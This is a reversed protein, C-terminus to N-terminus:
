RGAVCLRCRRRHGESARRRPDHEDVDSAHKRARPAACYGVTSVKEPSPAFIRAYVMILARLRDSPLPPVDISVLLVTCGSATRAGRSGCCGGGICGSSRMRRRKRIAVGHTSSAASASIRNSRARTRKASNFSLRSCEEKRACPAAADEASAAAALGAEVSVRVRVSLRRRRGAVCVAARSRGSSIWSRSSAPHSGTRAGAIQDSRGARVRPAPHRRATNGAHVAISQDGSPASVRVDIRSRGCINLTSTRAAITNRAIRRISSACSAISRTNRRGTSSASIVTLDRFPKPVRARGVVGGPHIAHPRARRAVGPQPRAVRSRPRGVHTGREAWSLAGGRQGM